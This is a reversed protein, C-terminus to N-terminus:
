SFLSWITAGGAVVMIAVTAWGVLTTIPRNVHEKMIKKSSSIIVIPILVVPAVLGNSVAAYILAKIPDLGIFNLAFGILMSIIIVGYFATAQKLKYSLGQKWGFTESIAYSASGALVPMALLGTSVIGLTFLLYSLDGALPRLAEAAQAANQINTIGMLHLTSACAVVIFFMVLNSLFMGSWIDIRMNKIDSDDHQTRQQITTKGQSIEEEVEQSTQWFFLYPSITTGLIGCILIIQDKSLTLSPTITHMLIENWNLGKIMLTSFVYSLLTLALWKLYKAYKKYTSFIQLFLTIIVFVVVLFAFDFQPALLRTAAAMVGLDAGINFTNAVFLLLTATILMWRPFVRKINVALGRGTVMGIRACMEQVTAMLPFTLPALWLLQFGTQAGQQSYTGVGSSDDDAAGTTLGPGLIYWYNKAKQVIKKNNVEKLIASSDEITKELVKAPAEVAIELIKDQQKM